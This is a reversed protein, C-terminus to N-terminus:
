AYNGAEPQLPRPEALIVNEKDTLVAGAPAAKPKRVFKRRTWIVPCMESGRGKSHWAAWSAARELLQKDPDSKMKNMRILVHSGSVGRAHLWIDDKHSDRLLVDNSKANKGIWIEYKGAQVVKYPRAPQESAGDSKYTELKGYDQEIESLDSITKADAIRDKIKELKSIRDNVREAHELASEYSREAKKKKTFYRNANAALDMGPDLQIAVPKNDNYFDPLEIQEEGEAPLHAHSVLIHGLEEYRAARELSKGAKDGAESQRYLSELRNKLHSSLKKLRDEFRLERSGTFWAVRVADNVSDFLEAGSTDIFDSSLLTFRGDPLIKPEPSQRLQLEAKTFTDAVSKEDDEMLGIHDIVDQIFNRPFLPFVRQVRKKLKGKTEAFVAPSPERPEPAPQGTVHGPEKFADDILGNRILFLNPKGSFLKLLLENDGETFRIRIFRDGETQEIGSVYEGELEPFFSVSNSKKWSVRPDLFCATRVPHGAFTLKHLTEDRSFFLEIIHKKYTVAQIFQAGQLTANLEDALYILTFYNNM